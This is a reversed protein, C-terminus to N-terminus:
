NNQNREDWGEPASPRLSVEGEASVLESVRPM